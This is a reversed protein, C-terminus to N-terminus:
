ASVAAENAEFVVRVFTVHADFIRGGGYSGGVRNRSVISDSFSTNTGFVIDFALFGGGDPRTNDTIAVHAFRLVSTEDDNISSFGGERGNFEAHRITFYGGGDVRTPPFKATYLPVASTSGARARGQVVWSEGIPIQYQLEQSDPSVTQGLLASDDHAFRQWYGAVSDYLICGGPIDAGMGARQRLRSCTHTCTGEDVVAAPNYNDAWSDMCGSVACSASGPASFTGPACSICTASSSAGLQTSATGPECSRCVAVSDEVAGYLGATCHSCAESSTEGISFITTGVICTGVCQTVASQASFTGRGCPECATVPDSDHDRKGAECDECAPVVPSGSPDVTHQINRVVVAVQASTLADSHLELHHVTGRLQCWFHWLPLWNGLVMHGAGVAHGGDLGPDRFDFDFSLDAAEDEYGNLGQAYLSSTWELTSSSVDMVVMEAIPGDFGGTTTGYKSRAIIILPREPPIAPGVFGSEPFNLVTLSGRSGEPSFGTGIQWQASQVSLFCLLTEAGLMDGATSTFAFFITHKAGLAVTRDSYMVVAPGPDPFYSFVLGSPLGGEATAISPAVVPVDLADMWTEDLYLADGDHFAQAVSNTMTFSLNSPTAANWVPLGGADQTIGDARFRFALAEDAYTKVTGTPCICCTTIDGTTNGADDILVETSACTVDACSSQLRRTASSSNTLRQLLPLQDQLEDPLDQQHHHGQEEKQQHNEHHQQPPQQPDPLREHLMMRLEEQETQLRDTNVLVASRDTGSDLTVPAAAAASAVALLALVNLPMIGRSRGSGLRMNQKQAERTRHTSRTRRHLCLEKIARATVEAAALPGGRASRARSCGGAVSPSLSTRADAGRVPVRRAGVAHPSLVDGASQCVRARRSWRLCSGRVDFQVSSAYCASFAVKVGGAAVPFRCRSCWACQRRTSVDDRHM